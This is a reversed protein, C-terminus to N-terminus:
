SIKQKKHLDKIEEDTFGYVEKLQKDTVYIYWIGDINKAEKKLHKFVSEIQEITIKNESKTKKRM